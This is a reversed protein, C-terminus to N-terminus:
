RRLLQLLELNWREIENQPMVGVPQRSPEPSQL